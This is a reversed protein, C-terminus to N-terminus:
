THMRSSYLSDCSTKTAKLIRGMGRMPRSLETAKRFVFTISGTTSMDYIRIQCVEVWTNSYVALEKGDANGITRFISLADTFFLTWVILVLFATVVIHGVLVHAVKLPSNTILLLHNFYYM